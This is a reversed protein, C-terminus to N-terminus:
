FPKFWAFVLLCITALHCCNQGRRSFVPKRIAHAAGIVLGALLGFLHAMLDVRQGGSGLLGLLALGAALPLWAKVRQGPRRFKEWFQRGSLIGIAGFVATSAGISSHNAGHLAANALNGFVGTLLIMLWGPGAGTMMCVATGFLTLGAMNGILHVADSHLLLATVARHIEGDMIRASSAGFEQFFTREAHHMSIAAYVVLLLLSPWIGGLNKPFLSAPPPTEALSPAEPDPNERFYQKMAELAAEYEEERAWIEWGDRSIATQYGIGSSSLVLTSINAQESTLNKLLKPM